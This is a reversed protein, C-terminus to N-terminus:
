HEKINSYQSFSQITRDVDEVEAKFEEQENEM